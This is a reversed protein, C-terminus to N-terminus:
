QAEQNPPLIPLHRDAQPSLIHRELQTVAHEIREVLDTVSMRRELQWHERCDCDLADFVSLDYSSNFREIAEWFATNCPHDRGAGNYAVNEYKPWFQLGGIRFEGRPAVARAVEIVSWLWPVRHLRFRELMGALNHQSSNVPELSVIDAGSDFAFRSTAIADDIALQESLFSPKLLVYALSKMKMRRLLKVSEQFADLTYPKNICLRRITDNSSELGIGVEIRRGELLRAAEKLKNESIFRPLSELVVTHVHRNASIRRLIQRRAEQPLEDDNFFNGENYVAVIPINKDYKSYEREFQAIYDDATVRRGLTTGAVSHECDLCGPQLKPKGDKLRGVSWFCGRSRLYIILRQARANEVCASWIESGKAERPSGRADPTGERIHVMIRGIRKVLEQHPFSPSLTTM